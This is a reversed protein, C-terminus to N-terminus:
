YVMIKQVFRGKTTNISIFNIGKSLNEEVEFRNFNVAENTIVKGYVDYISYDLVQGADELNVIFQGKNPNTMIQVSPSLLENDITAVNMIPVCESTNMCNDQEIIVAYEGDQTATFSPGNEGAIPELTSCDIWTYSDAAAEDATITADNVTVSNNVTTIQIDAVITSDCNGGSTNYTINQSTFYWSGNVFASDCATITENITIAGSTLNGEIWNSSTGDLTFGDLVGTNGNGSYDTAIVNSDNLGNPEGENLKWYGILGPPIDCLENEMDAIIEAQTKGYDYFRVEDIDGEFYNVDDLRKGIMVSNISATNATITPSGETDLEGDVYLKVTNGEEFFAVAVHHWFGDNVPFIGSVGNGGVELRIANNWLVNFTFREGTLFTGYDVIVIQKGGNNPDCNATTRIWAEITRDASGPVGPYTTQVFDDIGDFNLAPSQAEVNNTFFFLGVLLTFTYSRKM